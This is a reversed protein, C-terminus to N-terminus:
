TTMIFTLTLLLIFPFLIMMYKPVIMSKLPPVLARKSPHADERASTGTRTGQSRLRFAEFLCGFIHELAVLDLPSRPGRYPPLEIIVQVAPAKDQKRKTRLAVHKKKQGGCSPATTTTQDAASPRSEGTSSSGIPNPALTEVAPAGEGEADDNTPEQWGINDDDFLEV